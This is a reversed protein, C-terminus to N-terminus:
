DAIASADASVRIAANNDLTVSASEGVLAAVQAAGLVAIATADASDGTAADAFAIASVNIGDATGTGNNVLSLTATDAIFAAIQAAGAGAVANAAPDFGTANATADVGIAGSNTLGLNAEERFIALQGAGLAAPANADASNDVGTTADAHANALARVNI